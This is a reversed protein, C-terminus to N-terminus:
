VGFIDDFMNEAEGEDMTQPQLKQLLSTSLNNENIVGDGLGVIEASITHNINDVEVNITNTSEGEYEITAISGNGGLRDCNIYIPEQRSATFIRIYLEGPELGSKIGVGPFNDNEYNDTGEKSAEIVDGKLISPLTPLIDNFLIEFTEHITKNAEIVDTNPDDDINHPIILDEGLPITKSDTSIKYGGSIKEVTVGVGARLVGVESTGSKLTLQDRIIDPYDRPGSASSTDGGVSTIAENLEDSLNNIMVHELLSAM